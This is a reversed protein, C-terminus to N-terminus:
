LVWSLLLVFDFVALSALLCFFALKDVQLLLAFLRIVRFTGRGFRMGLRVQLL